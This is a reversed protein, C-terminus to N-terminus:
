DLELQRIRPQLVERFRSLREAAWNVYEDTSKLADEITGARYVAIRSARKDPIEEWELRDGIAEEIEAQSEKLLAFARKNREKDGTDIYLEVRFRGDRTFSSGIAFGTMGAGTSFWSQAPAVSDSRVSPFRSRILNLLRTWFDRYKSARESPETVQKPRKEVPPASVVNFRVAPRSEDIRLVELELGYFLLDKGSIRNLWELAERHAEQFETAIWVLVGAERGAAYTILKGLHDHDTRGFQNEVVVPTQNTGEYGALDLRFNAVPGEAEDLEVQLGLADGLLQANDKVWQSLDQEERPWIKRLESEDLRSLRGLNGKEM